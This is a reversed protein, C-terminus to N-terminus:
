LTGSLLTCLPGSDEGVRSTLPEAVLACDAAQYLDAVREEESRAVLVLLRGGPKLVRLPEQAPPQSTEKVTVLVGDLSDEAYPLAGDINWSSFAANNPNDTSRAVAIVADEDCGFTWEALSALLRVTWGDGCGIHLLHDSPRPALRDLSQLLLDSPFPKM